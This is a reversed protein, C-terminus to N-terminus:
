SGEVKERFEEDKNWKLLEIGEVESQYLNNLYSAKKLMDGRCVKKDGSPSGFGIIKEKASM